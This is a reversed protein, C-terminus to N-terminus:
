TSERESFTRQPAATALARASASPSSIHLLRLCRSRANEGVTQLVERRQLAVRMRLIVLACQGLLPPSRVPTKWLPPPLEERGKPRNLLPMRSSAVGGAQATASSPTRCARLPPQPNPIDHAVAASPLSVSGLPLQTAHRSKLTYKGDHSSATPTPLLQAPAKM